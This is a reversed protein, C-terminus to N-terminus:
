GIGPPRIVLTSISSRHDADSKRFLHRLTERFQAMLSFCRAVPPTTAHTERSMRSMPSLNCSRCTQSSTVIACHKFYFHATERNPLAFSRTALLRYFQVKVLKRGRRGNIIEVSQGAKSSTM